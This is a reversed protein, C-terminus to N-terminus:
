HTLFEALNQINKSFDPLSAIVFAESLVVFLKNELNFIGTIEIVFASCVYVCKAM